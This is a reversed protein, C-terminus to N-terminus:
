NRYDQGHKGGRWRRNEACIMEDEEKRDGHQWIPVESKIQFDM